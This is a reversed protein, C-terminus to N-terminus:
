PDRHVLEDRGEPRDGFGRSPVAVERPVGGQPDPYLLVEVEVSIQSPEALPTIEAARGFVELEPPQPPLGLGRYYLTRAYLGTL